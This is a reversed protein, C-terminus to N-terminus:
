MREDSVAPVQEIVALLALSSVYRADLAEVSKVKLAAVTGFAGMNFETM